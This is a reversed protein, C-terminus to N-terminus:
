HHVVRNISISSVALAAPNYLAPLTRAHAPGLGHNWAAPSSETAYDWLNSYLTCYYLLKLMLHM